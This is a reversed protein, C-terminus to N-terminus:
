NLSSYTEGRGLAAKRNRYYVRLCPKCNNQTNVNAPTREHGNKCHTTREGKRRNNEAQTVPELHAPNVCVANNCLHDITLGEPIPGFFATWMYRAARYRYLVGEDQFRVTPYKYGKAGVLSKPYLWCGDPSLATAAIVRLTIYERVEINKTEM